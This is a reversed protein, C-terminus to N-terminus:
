FGFMGNDNALGDTPVPQIVDWHEAVKGNELRVIQPFGRITNKVPHHIKNLMDAEIEMINIPKEQNMQKVKEWTPRLDRCHGCQPHHFLIICNKKITYDFKEINSNNLELVNL